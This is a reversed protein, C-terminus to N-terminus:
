WAKSRTSCRRTPRTPTRAFIRGPAIVRIPPKQTMMTRIQVPCTHTRLLKREGGGGAELLLHRANGAGSAPPFNLATFNHFDDEIDPGEAVAFGMDAFIAAMEEFVQM